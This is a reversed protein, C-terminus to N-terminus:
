PNNACPGVFSQLCELIHVSDLPFKLEWETKLIVLDLKEFKPIPLSNPWNFQHGLLSANRLNLIEIITSSFPGDIIWGAM